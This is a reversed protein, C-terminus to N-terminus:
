NSLDYLYNKSQTSLEQLADLGGLKKISLLDCICKAM